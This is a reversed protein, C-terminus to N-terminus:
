SRLCMILYIIYASTLMIGETRTLKFDSRLMVWLAIALGCMWAYDAMFGAASDLIPCVSSAVGVVCLCNFSVSGMINGVAMDTQGKRAAIVSAFLEPLSTGVAVITLGIVRETVGFLRAIDTAGEVLLNSGFVMAAFSVLVLAIAVPLKYTSAESQGDAVDQQQRCSRVQWAVFVILTAVMALGEWRNIENTTYACICMAITFLVMYSGDRYVTQRNTPVPCILATVGLILAINAINSGVVNGIAIGPSGALAAQTSVLLEPCSTGFGIVTMGIVMPSLRAFRAISVAGDVLYDGGKVLLVFGILIYITSIM